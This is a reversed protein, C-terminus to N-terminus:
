SGLIHQLLAIRVYLGNEAQEYARFPGTSSESVEPVIEFQDSIPLPHLLIAGSEMFEVHEPKIQFAPYQAKLSLRLADDVIRESQLRGWYVVDAGDIGRNVDQTLEVKVGEQALHTLLEQPPGLRDPTVFRLTMGCYKSLLYALSRATRSFLVDAGICVTLGDIRGLLDQITYLDLLAQTPHHKQGSGANIIPITGGYRNSVDSARDSADDASHRLVIVDPHYGCLVRITDTLTEGKAMSSFQGNESWVVNMGLDIGAKCFSFRTRTSEEAFFAFMTRGPLLKRLEARGEKGSTFTNKLRTVKEFFEDLWPRTFDQSRLVHTMQEM